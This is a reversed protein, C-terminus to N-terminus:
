VDAATVFEWMPDYPRWAPTVDVTFAAHSRTLGVISRLADQEDDTLFSVRGATRTDVTYGYPGAQETIKAGTGSDAERVVARRLVTKVQARQTDSLDTPTALPPAAMVAFTEADAILVALREPDTEILPALDAPTLYM